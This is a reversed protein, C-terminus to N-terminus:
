VDTRWLQRGMETEETLEPEINEIRNFPRAMRSRADNAAKKQRNTEADRAASLQGCNRPGVPSPTTPSAFCGSCHDASSCTAHFDSIGPTPQDCGITHSPLTKKVVHMASLRFRGRGPSQVGPSPPM